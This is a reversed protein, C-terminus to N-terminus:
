RLISYNTPFCAPQSLSIDDFLLFCRLEFAQHSSVLYRSDSVSDGQVYNNAIVNKENSWPKLASFGKQYRM